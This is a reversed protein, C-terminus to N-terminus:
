KAVSLDLETVVPGKGTDVTKPAASGLRAADVKAAARLETLVASGRRQALETLEADSIQAAEILRDAMARAVRIAQLAQPNAPPKTGAGEATPPPAAAPKALSARLDRVAPNGFQEL